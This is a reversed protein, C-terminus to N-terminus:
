TSSPKQSNTFIQLPALRLFLTSYPFFIKIIRKRIEQYYIKKPLIMKGTDTLNQWSSNIEIDNVFDFISITSGTSVISATSDTSATSVASVTSATSGTSVTSATSFLCM